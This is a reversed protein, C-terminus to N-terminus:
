HREDTNEFIECFRASFSPKEGGLTLHTTDGLRLTRFTVVGKEREETAVETVSTPAMAMFQLPVFPSVNWLHSLIVSTIGYHCFFALCKENGEKASYISGNRIYGKTKLLEDFAETVHDYIEAANSAKVLDSERWKLVDFLEPHDGYYSPLIDWIIRKQYEGTDPDKKLENKYAQREKEDASNADFLAPFEQLWEFTTVPLNLEKISYKMTEQARGLPSAYVEDIGFTNITRSLLEAERAGKPTLSDNIYDPDGHRFFLLRMAKHEKASKRIPSLDVDM